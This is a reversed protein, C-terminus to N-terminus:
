MFQYQFPLECKRHLQRLVCLRYNLPHYSQIGALSKCYRLYESMMPEFFGIFIVRFLLIFLFLLIRRLGIIIRNSSTRIPLTTHMLLRPTVIVCILLLLTLIDIQLRYLAVHVIYVHIVKKIVLYVRCLEWVCVIAANCLVKTSFIDVFLRQSHTLVETERALEHYLTEIASVDIMGGCAVVQECISASLFFRWSPLESILIM